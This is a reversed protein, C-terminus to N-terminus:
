FEVCYSAVHTELNEACMMFCSGRDMQLDAAKCQIQRKQLVVKTEVVMMSAM